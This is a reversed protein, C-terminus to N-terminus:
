HEVSEWKEQHNKAYEYEQRSIKEYQSWVKKPAYRVNGHDRFSRFHKAWDNVDWEPHQRFDPFRYEKDICGVMTDAKKDNIYRIQGDPCVLLSRVNCFKFYDRTKTLFFFCSVLAWTIPGSLIMGLKDSENDFALVAFFSFLSMLLFGLIFTTM